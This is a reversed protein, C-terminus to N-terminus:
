QKQFIIKHGFFFIASTPVSPRKKTPQREITKGIENNIKKEIKQSIIFHYADVHKKLTITGYKKYYIILIKREKTRVNFINVVNDYCLYM